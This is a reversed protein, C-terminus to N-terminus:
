GTERMWRGSWDLGMEDLHLCASGLACGDCHNSGATEPGHHPLMGQCLDGSHAFSGLDHGTHPFFLLIRLQPYHSVALVQGEGADLLDARPDAVGAQRHVDCDV